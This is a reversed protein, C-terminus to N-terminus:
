YLLFILTSVNFWGMGLVGCNRLLAPPLELREPMAVSGNVRKMELSVEVELLVRTGKLHVMQIYNSGVLTLNRRDWEESLRSAYGELPKAYHEFEVAARYAEFGLKHQIPILLAKEIAYICPVVTSWNEQTNLHWREDSEGQSVGHLSLSWQPLWRQMLSINEGLRKWM